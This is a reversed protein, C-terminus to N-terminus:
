AAAAAANPVQRTAVNLRNWVNISAIALLLGALQPEEYHRAAEAWLADPVPDARDAIRTVADALELAIREPDTFLPSDHWAAVAFIRADPEGLEKLERAHMDVCFSCGNIQSARLEVLKATAEPLGTRRVSGALAYLAQMAGPTTTAPQRMRPEVPEEEITEL